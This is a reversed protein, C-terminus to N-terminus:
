PSHVPALPVLYRSIQNVSKFPNRCWPYLGIAHIGIGVGGFSSVSHAFSLFVFLPVIEAQLVDCLKLFPKVSFRGYEPHELPPPPFPFARHPPLYVIAFAVLMVTSTLILMVSSVIQRQKRIRSIHISSWGFSRMTTSLIAVSRPNRCLALMWFSSHGQIDWLCHTITYSASLCHLM